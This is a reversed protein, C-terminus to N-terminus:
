FVSERAFYLFILLTAIVLPIKDWVWVNKKDPATTPRAVVVLPTAQREARLRVVGRTRPPADLWPEQRLFMTLKWEIMIM